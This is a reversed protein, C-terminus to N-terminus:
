WQTNTWRCPYLVCKSWAFYFSIDNGWSRTAWLFEPLDKAIIMARALETLTRNFRESVGNQEPSYPATMQIEIGRDKCWTLLENNIYEKGNDVRVKKPRNECRRELYTLHQKMKITAESKHKLFVVSVRRSCDDIFSIYYKAGGISEVRAPGWLDSHTLEGPDKSREDISDPFPKRVQKAQICAECDVIPSNQDVELGDVLNEQCLRKLGSCAIHGYRRHWTMWDTKLRERVTQVQTKPYLQAQTDLKYLGKTMHGKVITRGGKVSLTVKGDGMLAKGGEKDLRTISILNNSASPVYLVNKFKARIQRNGFTSVLEITGKGLAELSEKGIGLVRHESLPVYDTLASRIKTIHSSSGSDAFWDYWALEECEGDQLRVCVKETDEAIETTPYEALNSTSAMYAVDDMVEDETEMPVEQVLQAKDKKFRKKASPGEGAKAGGKAWCDKHEHGTKGCNSCKKSRHWCDNETHGIKKCVKCKKVNGEKKESFKRKKTGQVAIKSETFEIEREKRRRDEEHIMSILEHSTMTPNSQHTVVFTEWSPPLSGMLITRFDMDPVVSGMLHLNEQIQKLEIIHAPIDKTESAFTRYLKHRWTYIGQQGRSEKVLKLQDWMEKATVAGTLHVM